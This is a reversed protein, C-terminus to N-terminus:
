RAAQLSLSTTRGSTLSSTSGAAVLIGSEGLEVTFPSSQGASLAPCALRYAGYDHSVQSCVVTGQRDLVRVVLDPDTKPQLSADLKGGLMFGRTTADIDARHSGALNTGTLSRSVLTKGNRTVTLTGGCTITCPPPTMAPAASHATGVALHYVGASDTKSRVSTSGSSFTVTAGALPVVATPNAGASFGKQATVSGFLNVEGYPPNAAQLSLSNPRGTRLTAIEAASVVTGAEDLEVTFPGRQNSPLTPCVLRYEGYRHSIQSCVLAGQKDLVRVKLDPNAKPQLPPDLKGSLVFGPTSADIDARHGQALAEASVPLTALTKGHHMVMLTGNCTTPCSPVRAPALPIAQGITLQYVGARDTTTQLATSGYILRVRVGVLPTVRTAKAGAAFGDQSTVLGSLNLQGYPKNTGHLNVSTAAGSRLSNVTASSILFGSEGLEVTFPPHAPATPCVMRYAGYRDSTQSCLLTRNKDLVRMVLDPKPKPEVPPIVNGDMVFGTTSADIDERHSGALNTSTLSRTALTQGNRTVTLTGGCTITCPPTGAAPAALSQAPGVALHYAGASSTKASVSTSGSSFTVMAGALPVVKSPTQGPAFSNQSTVLGFLNV